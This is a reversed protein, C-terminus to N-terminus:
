GKNWFWEWKGVKKGAQIRRAIIWADLAVFLHFTLLLGPLTGTFFGFMILTSECLILLTAKSDQGLLFQGAGGFGPVLFSILAALWPRKPDFILDLTLRYSDDRLTKENEPPIDNNMKIGKNPHSPLLESEFIINISIV